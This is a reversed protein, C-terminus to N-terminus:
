NMDALARQVAFRATLMTILGSLVPLVLLSALVRPPPVLEPLLAGHQQERVLYIAGLGIALAVLGLLAGKVGVWLFRRQFAGAILGDQAGMLHVIEVTERHSALGARTAFIIIVVTAMGVLAVILASVWQVIRMVVLLDSLWQEHADVRASPAAQALNQQLAKVDVEAGDALKVDIVAPVPLDAVVNGKGLWPELLSAVEENSERRVSAIGPVGTLVDMAAATEQERMEADPNVVQVTLTRALGEHWAHATAQLGVAVLLALGALFVMM